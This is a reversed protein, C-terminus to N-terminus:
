KGEKKNLIEQIVEFRQDDDLTIGSHRDLEHRLDEHLEEATWPYNYHIKLHAQVIQEVYWAQQLYAEGEADARSNIDEEDCSSGDEYGDYNTRM